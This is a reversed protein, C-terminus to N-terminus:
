RRNAIEGISQKSVDLALEFPTRVRSFDNGVLSIANSQAGSVKLFVDTAEAPRCGRLFADRVERFCLVAAASPAPQAELADIM